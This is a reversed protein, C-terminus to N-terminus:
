YNDDKCPYTLEVTQQVSNWYVYAKFYEYIKTIHIYPKNDLIFVPIQKDELTFIQTKTNWNTQKGLAQSLPIANIALMNDIKRIDSTIPHGNLYAMPLNFNLQNHAALWHAAGGILTQLNDATVYWTGCKEGM